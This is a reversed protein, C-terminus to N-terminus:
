RGLISGLGGGGVSKLVESGHEKIYQMMVDAAQEAKQQDLGAKQMLLRILEERV